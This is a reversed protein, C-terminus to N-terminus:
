GHASPMAADLEIARQSHLSNAAQQALEAPARAVYTDSGDSLLASQSLIVWEVGNCVTVSQSISVIAGLKMVNSTIAIVLLKSM